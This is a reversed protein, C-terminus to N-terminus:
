AVSGRAERASWDEVARVISSAGRGAAYVLPRAGRRAKIFETAPHKASAWAVVVLDARAVMAALAGSGGHDHNLDVSLGPIAAKLSTEAQRAATETLTYIGLVKGELAQAEFASSASDTDGPGLDIGVEAALAALALRQGGSLRSSLPALVAVVGVCFAQLRTPDAPAVGRAIEVIELVDYASTRNLGEICVAEAADLADRYEAPTLGCQLAGELLGAASRLATEGRRASLAMRVLIALYVSCFSQRPWRPDSQAWQVLYPAAAGFREEALGEQISEIRAALDRAVAPDVDEDPLRWTIAGAAAAEAAHLDERGLAAVWDSWGTPPANAGSREQVEQWLARNAPRRLLDERAENPLASLAQLFEADAAPDGEAPLSAVAVFAARAREAPTVPAEAEAEPTAVVPIRTEPPSVLARIREVVPKAPQPAVALLLRAWPAAPDTLVDERSREGGTATDHVATWYIAELLVEATSPSRGALALSEFRDHWRVAGWDGGAALIQMELQVLNLAELRAEERLLAHIRWANPLDGGNLADQLAALLRATPEPRAMALDPAGELLTALRLLGRIAITEGQASGAPRLKATETVGAAVLVQDVALGPDLPTPPGEFDTFTPGAFAVLLPQLKRWEAPTAAAAYFVLRGEPDQAPFIAGPFRVSDLTALLGRVEASLRDWGAAAALADTDVSLAM